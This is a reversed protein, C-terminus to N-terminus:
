PSSLRRPCSGDVGDPKGGLGFDRLDKNCVNALHVLDM